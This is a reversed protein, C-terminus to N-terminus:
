SLCTLKSLVLYCISSPHGLVNLFFNKQVWPITRVLVRNQRHQLIIVSHIHKNIRIEGIHRYKNSSKVTSKLCPRIFYGINAELKREAM